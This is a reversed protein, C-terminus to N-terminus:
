SSHRVGTAEALARLERRVATADGGRPKGGGIGAGAHLDGTRGVGAGAEEHREGDIVALRDAARRDCEQVVAGDEGGRDLALRGVATRLGGAEPERRAEGSKESSSAVRRAASAACRGVPWGRIARTRSKVPSLALAVTM